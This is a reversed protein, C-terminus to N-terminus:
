RRVLSSHSLHPSPPFHAACVNQMMMIKGFFTQLELFVLGPGVQEAQVPVVTASPSFNFFSMSQEVEMTSKWPEKKNVEWKAKWEHKVNPEQKQYKDPHLEPQFIFEKHLVDLHACDPGNEPIEAIHTLVEHGSWLALYWDGKGEEIHSLSPPYWMPNRMEIDYWVYIMNNAEFTDYSQISSGSPICDSYQISECVGETNFKWAHFPCVVCGGEVTGHMGLDAGLHPCYADLVGVKGQETRFAVLKKGCLSLSVVKGAPLMKQELVKYWGNPYPPLMDKSIRKRAPARGTGHWGGHMLHVSKNWRYLIVLLAVGAVILYNDWVAKILESVFADYQLSAMPSM